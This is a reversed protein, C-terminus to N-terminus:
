VKESVWPFKKFLQAASSKMPLFYKKFFQKIKLKELIVSGWWLLLWNRWIQCLTNEHSHYIKIALYYCFNFISHHGKFIRKELIIPGIIVWVKFKTNEPWPSKMLPATGKKKPSPNNIIHIFYHLYIMRWFWLILKMWIHCM